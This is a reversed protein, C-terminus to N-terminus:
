STRLVRNLLQEAASEATSMKPAAVPAGGGGSSSGIKPRVLNNRRKTTEEIENLKQLAKDRTEIAVASVHALATMKALAKSLEKPMDEVGLETLMRVIKGYEGGAAERLPTVYKKNHEEDNVRPIFEQAKGDREIESIVETWADTVTAAIRQKTQARKQQQMAAHEQQMREFAKKPEEEAKKAEVYLNQLQRVLGKAEVGGIADFNNSLFYNLERESKQALLENVDVDYEAALMNLKSSADEIPKIYTDQYQKSMKLNHIQEYKELEAIRQEKAKLPEPIINGSEYEKLKAAIEEKEKIIAEKEAKVTNFSSRLKKINNEAPNSILEDLLESGSKAAPQPPIEEEVKSETTVPQAAEVVKEEVVPKEVPPTPEVPAAEMPKPVEVPAPTSANNTVSNLLNDLANGVTAVSQNVQEPTVLRTM